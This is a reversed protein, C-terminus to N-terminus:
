RTGEAAFASVLARFHEGRAEFNPYQDYSACAPSLLATDGPRAASRAAAVAAPLDGARDLRVSTRELAAAIDEAAEGILYVAACRETVVPALPSFDQGKGRGGAILHVGGPYSRLAVITSAVNTAKSDNVWEVGNVEAFPELRHAVGTFSQLGGAVAEPDIGRALCVAAAAMANQRNHEGPLAVRDVALLPSVDWWLYGARDSLEADLGSGFLVRRACGGLDGIPLDAPAVAVDDNGQHAFIRLKAAVYSEFSGHRDLHDPELNILVAAEPSFAETDELQFSSAECVITAERDVAGVLTSLATGV